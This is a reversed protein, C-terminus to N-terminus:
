DSALELRQHGGLVSAVPFRYRGLTEGAIAHAQGDDHGARPEVHRPQFRITYRIEIPKEFGDALVRDCLDLRDALRDTTAIQLDNSNAIGAGRVTDEEACAGM